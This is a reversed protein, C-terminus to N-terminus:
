LSAICGQLNIFLIDLFKGAVPLEMAIPELADFPPEIESAPLLAPYKYLLEQFWREDFGSVPQIGQFSVRRLVSPKGDM